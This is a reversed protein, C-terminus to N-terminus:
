TFHGKNQDSKLSVQNEEVSKRFISWYSIENSDTWHSGLQEMRASPRVSMVLSTTEKRLETFEFVIYM